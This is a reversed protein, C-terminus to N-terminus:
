VHARGIQVNRVVGPGAPAGEVTDHFCWNNGKREEM